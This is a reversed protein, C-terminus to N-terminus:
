DEVKTAREAACLPCLRAGANKQNKLKRELDRGGKWLRAVRFTIGADMIVAMLRAGNGSRHDRLRADLDATYGLYHKAHKYPADFHLLYVTTANMM